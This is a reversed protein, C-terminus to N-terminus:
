SVEPKSDIKKSDLPISNINKELKKTSSTLASTTTEVRGTGTEEAPRKSPTTHKETTSSLLNFATFPTVNVHQAKTFQKSVIGKTAIFNPKINGFQVDFKKFDTDFQKM